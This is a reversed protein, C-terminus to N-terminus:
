AVLPFGLQSAILSYQFTTQVLTILISCAVVMSREYYFCQAHTSIKGPLCVVSTEDSHRYYNSCQIAPNSNTTSYHCDLLSTENGSCVPYYMHYETLTHDNWMHKVAIAGLYLM